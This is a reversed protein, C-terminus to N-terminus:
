GKGRIRRLIIDLLESLEPSYRKFYIVPGTLLLFLVSRLIADWWTNGTLPVLYLTATTLTLLLFIPMSAGTFPSLGMKIRLFLLRTINYVLISLATAFAAGIIGFLPIFVLNLVITVVLLGISFLADVRYYKSNVMIFGNIGAGTDIVQSLGLFLFILFSEGYEDPIFVLLLDYNLLILCFVTGSLIMQNISSKKYLDAISRIDNRKFAEAVLSPATRAIASAPVRIVSVMAAAIAYISVAPLGILSGLMLQDVKNILHSSLGSLINFSNFDRIQKLYTKDAEHVHFDDPLENLLAIYILTVLTIVAYSLAYSLIFTHFDFQGQSYMLILVMWIIRLIIFPMTASVVNKYLAKLYADFLNYFVMAIAFPVLLYFYEVFLASNEIYWNTIPTKFIWLISLVATLGASCILFGYYLVKKHLYPYYRVVMSPTGLQGFQSIVITVSLLIRTLGYQDTDLFNPFLIITNIYGLIIGAYQIVTFFISNRRVIGM